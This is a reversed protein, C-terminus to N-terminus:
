RIIQRVLRVLGFDVLGLFASVVLVLFLVVATAGLTEKRDPWTVKRLEQVAERIFQRAAHLWDKLGGLRTLWSTKPKGPRLKILQGKSAAPAADKPTRKTKEKNKSM